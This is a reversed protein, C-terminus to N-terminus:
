RQRCAGCSAKLAAEQLLGAARLAGPVEDALVQRLQGDDDLLVADQFDDGLPLGVQEVVAHDGKVDLAAEAHGQAGGLEVGPELLAEGLPVLHVEQGVLDGLVVALPQPGGLHLLEGEKDGVFLRGDLPQAALQVRLDAGAGLGVLVELGLEQALQVLGAVLVQGLQAVHQGLVEELVLPLAPVHGIRRRWPSRSFSRSRDSSRSNPSYAWPLPRSCTKRM